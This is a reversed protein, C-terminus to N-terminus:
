KQSDKNLPTYVVSHRDQQQPGHHPLIVISSLSSHLKFMTTTTTTFSCHHTDVPAPPSFVLFTNHNHNFPQHSRRDPTCHPTRVPPPPKISPTKPKYHSTLLLIDTLQWNDPQFLTHIPHRRINTDKHLSTPAPQNSFAPMPWGTTTSTYNLVTSVSINGCPCPWMPPCPWM